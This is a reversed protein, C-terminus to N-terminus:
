AGQAARGAGRRCTRRESRTKWFSVRASSSANLADLLHGHQPVIYASGPGCGLPLASAILAVLTLAIGARVTDGRVTGGRVTDEWVTGRRVTDERVADGRATDGRVADGRATDGRM